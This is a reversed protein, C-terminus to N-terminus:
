RPRARLRSLAGALVRWWLPASVGSGTSAPGQPLFAPRPPAGPTVMGGDAHPRGREGPLPSEPASGSRLAVHCLAIPAQEVRRLTDRTYGAVRLDSAPYGEICEAISIASDAPDRECILLLPEWRQVSV